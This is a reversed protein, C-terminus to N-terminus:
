SKHYVVTVVVAFWLRVSHRSYSWCPEPICKSIYRGETKCLLCILIKRILQKWTLHFKTKESIEEAYELKKFFKQYRKKFYMCEGQQEKIHGVDIIINGADNLGFQTQVDAGDNQMMINEPIIVSPLDNTLDAKESRYMPGMLSRDLADLVNLQIQKRRVSTEKAQKGSQINIKNLSEFQELTLGYRITSGLHIFRDLQHKPEIEIDTSSVIEYDELDLPELDDVSNISLSKSICELSPAIISMVGCEVACAKEGSVDGDCGRDVLQTAITNDKRLQRYGSGSADPLSPKAGSKDAHKGKSDGDATNNSFLSDGLPSNINSSVRAYGSASHTGANKQEDPPARINNRNGFRALSWKKFLKM